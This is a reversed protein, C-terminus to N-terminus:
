HHTEFFFNPYPPRDLKKKPNLFFFKVKCLGWGVKSEEAGRTDPTPHPGGYLGAEREQSRAVESTERDEGDVDTQRDRDGRRVAGGPPCVASSYVSYCWRM